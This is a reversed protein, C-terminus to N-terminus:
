RRGLMSTGSLLRARGRVSGASIHELDPDVYLYPRLAQTPIGAADRGDEQYESTSFHIENAIGNPFIELVRRFHEVEDTLEPTWDPQEAYICDESRGSGGQIEGETSIGVVLRLDPRLRLLNMAYAYTLRARFSRYEDYNLQACVGDRKLLLLFYGVDPHRQSKEPLLARFFRDNKGIREFADKLAIGYMRRELRPALALYRVGLDRQSPHRFGEFGQATYSTDNLINHAFREVIHDWIYSIADARKKRAYEPKGIIDRYYGGEIMLHANSSLPKNSPCFDHRGDPGLNTIYLALLDEEGHAGMLQGSRVFQEKKTLYDTFDTITDLERLVVDLTVDDLIHIFSHQGGPNGIFFPPPDDGAAVAEDALDPMIALSGSGEDFYKRCAEAAGLAVVVGHFKMSSPNPLQLPFPVKASSDLFLEGPRRLLWRRAKNVQAASKAIARRYWRSWALETSAHNQWEVTKDSFVIVHDGCVVLLDCLEDGASKFVNPYSWLSLFSRGALGALYRESKTLGEGKTIPGIASREANNM